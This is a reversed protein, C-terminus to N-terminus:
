YLPLRKSWLPIDYRVNINLDTGTSKKQDERGLVLWDKRDQM